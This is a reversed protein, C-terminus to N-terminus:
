NSQTKMTQQPKKAQTTKTMEPQQDVVHGEVHFQLDLAVVEEIGLDDVMDRVLGVGHHQGVRRM